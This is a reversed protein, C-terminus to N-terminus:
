KKELREIRKEIEKMCLKCTVLNIDRTISNSMYGCITGKGQEQEKIFAPIKSDHEYSYLHIKSM